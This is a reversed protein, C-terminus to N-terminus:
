NKESENVWRDKGVDRLPRKGELKTVLTKCALRLKEECAVCEVWRMM